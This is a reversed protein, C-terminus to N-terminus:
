NAGSNINQKMETSRETIAILIMTIIIADAYLNPALPASFAFYCHKRIRTIIFITREYFPGKLIILPQDTGPKPDLPRWM